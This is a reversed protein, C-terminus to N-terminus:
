FKLSFCSSDDPYIILPHSSSFTKQKNTKNNNNNKKQEKSKDRDKKEKEKLQHSIVKCYQPPKAIYDCSDAIPTCTNGMRISRGVERRMGDRLTMGIYWGQAGQMM